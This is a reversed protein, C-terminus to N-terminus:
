AAAQNNVLTATLADDDGDTGICKFPTTLMLNDRGGITPTKGDTRINGALTLTHSGATFEIELAHETGNRYRNLQDLSTFELTLEGTYDRPTGGMELPEDIEDADVNRRSTDLPNTGSIKGSRVKVPAGALSVVTLSSGVARFRQMGAEYSVAALATTGIGLAKGVLELGLTVFKGQEFGIEWSSIKCGAYTFSQVTGAAVHLPKGVQVTLGKGGLDGPTLVHTHLGASPTDATTDATGGIMHELLLGVQLDYLELAVPGAITKNGPAWQESTLVRRGAIISESEVREIGEDLEESILPLHRIATTTPTGWTGEPAFGISKDHLGM